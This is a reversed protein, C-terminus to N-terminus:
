KIACHIHLASPFSLGKLKDKIHGFLFSDSLAVDPSYPRHPAVRLDLKACFKISSKAPHPHADDAHLALEKQTEDRFHRARKLLRTLVSLCCSDANFKQGKPLVEIAQFGDPNWAITVTLKESSIM